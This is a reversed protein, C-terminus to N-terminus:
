GRVVVATLAARTQGTDVADVTTIRERLWEQLALRLRELEPAPDRGLAVAHAVWRMGQRIEDRKAQGLWRLIPRASMTPTGAEIWALVQAVSPGPEGNPRVHAPAPSPIGYEVRTGKLEGARRLIGDLRDRNVRTSGM